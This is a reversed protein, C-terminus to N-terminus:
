LCLNGFGSIYGQKGQRLRVNIEFTGTTSQLADNVMEFKQEVISILISDEQFRTTKGDWWVIEFHNSTFFALLADLIVPCFPM